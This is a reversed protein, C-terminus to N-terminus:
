CAEITRRFLNYYNKCMQELTFRTEASERANTSLFRQRGHDELVEIAKSSFMETDFPPIVSGSIGDEIIEASGGIDFTVCPTGCSIAEILVNPLNDARTPYILLDSASLFTAMLIDSRVYGINRVVFNDLCSLNHFDGRGIILLYIKDRIRKNISKLINILDVAGKWPTLFRSSFMLVKCEKPIDLARKCATKDKPRFIDLDFGNYIQFMDINEFAPSQRALNYLWKSPTVITMNASQYIARKRKLLWRGTNIGIPPYINVDPCGGKMYKWSMDGFSHACHGTFSWMDSLTWVIPAMKTLDKILSTKFYGGHINRLYFIDPKLKRALRLLTSTSFPFCFYQLGLRNTCIDLGNEIIRQLGKQRTPFVRPDHSWKTGVALFIEIDDYFRELGKSLRYAAVAAGGNVDEANILLIRM